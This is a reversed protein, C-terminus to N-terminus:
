CVNVSVSALVQYGFVVTPTVDAVQNLGWGAQQWLREANLARRTGIRGGDRDSVDITISAFVNYYCIQIVAQPNKHRCAAFLRGALHRRRYWRATPLGRVAEACSNSRGPIIGQRRRHM